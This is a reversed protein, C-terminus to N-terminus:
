SKNKNLFSHVKTTLVNDREFWLILGAVGVNGLVVAITNPSLKEPRAADIQKSLVDIHKIIKKYEDSDASHGGLQAIALTRVVELETKEPSKFPNRFM